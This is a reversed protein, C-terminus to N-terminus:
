FGYKQLELFESFKPFRPFNMYWYQTFIESKESAGTCFWFELVPRLVKQKGFLM